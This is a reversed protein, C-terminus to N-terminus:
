ERRGKMHSQLYVLAMEREEDSARKLANNYTESIWADDAAASDRALMLWMLGQAAQRPVQNNGNFLLSGLLAQAEYQSKNAALRLWRAAQKADKGELYLRGLHYQADPDGFYSAAYRFMDRARNVDRRVESNAIGELYYRGLAVFASAVFRAQPTNPNDEAHSNVIGSFYRFAKLNDQPVGEGRAYMRGLKWQSPYHGHEAAYQLSTVAKSNEGAQLAATGSRFAEMATMPPRPAAASPAQPGDFASASCLGLGGMVVVMRLASSTRM